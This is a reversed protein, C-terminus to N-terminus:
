WEWTPLGDIKDGEADLEVYNAGMERAMDIVANLEAPIILSPEDEVFVTWGYKHVAIHLDPWQSEPEHNAAFEGQEDLWRAVYQPVHATSIVLVKRISIQDIM